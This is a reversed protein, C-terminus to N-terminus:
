GGFVVDHMLRGPFLSLLSMLVLAIMLIAMTRGHDGFKRRKVSYIGYAMLVLASGGGIYGAVWSDGHPVLLSSAGMATMASVWIWGLTRHRTDGKPLAIMGWGAIVLTLIIIAHVRTALPASAFATWNLGPRWSADTWNESGGALWAITPVVILLVAAFVVLRPIEGPPLISRASRPRTKATSMEHRAHSSTM